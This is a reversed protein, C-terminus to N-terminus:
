SRLVPYVCLRPIACEEIDGMEGPRKRKHELHPFLTLKGCLSNTSPDSKNLCEDIWGAVFQYTEDSPTRNCACKFEGIRIERLITKIELTAREPALVKFICSNGRLISNVYSAVCHRMERGEEKLDALNTIQLITENGKLPAKPFLITADFVSNKRSNVIDVMQDHLTKLSERSDCKNLAKALNMPLMDAMRSVDRWLRMVQDTEKILDRFRPYQRAALGFALRTKTFFPAHQHILLLQLPIASYHRFLRNNDNGLASRLAALSYTNLMQHQTQIKKLMQVDANSGKGLIEKLIDRRKKRVMLKGYDGPLHNKHLFDAILWALLPIDMFLELGERSQACVQLLKVQLYDFGVAERRVNEPIQRIFDAVPLEPQTEYAPRLIRIFPDRHHIEWEGSKNIFVHFGADFSSFKFCYNLHPKLAVFFFQKDPSLQTVNEKLFMDTIQKSFLLSFVPPRSAIM